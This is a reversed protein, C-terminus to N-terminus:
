KGRPLAPARGLVDIRCAGAARAPGPRATRGGRGSRAHEALRQALTGYFAAAVGIAQLGLFVRWSSNPAPELLTGFNHDPTM